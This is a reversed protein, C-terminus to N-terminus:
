NMFRKLPAIDWESELRRSATWIDLPSGSRDSAFYLTHGDPSEIPCGDNFPTNIGITRHPDLSVPSGWEGVNQALATPVCLMTQLVVSLVVSRLRAFTGRQSAAHAIDDPREFALSM